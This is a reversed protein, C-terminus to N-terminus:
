LAGALDDLVRAISEPDEIQIDHGTAVEVEPWGRERAFRVSGLFADSGPEKAVCHVFAAPLKWVADAVVAPETLTSLPHWSERYRDAVDAPYADLDDPFPFPVRWGDGVNRAPGLMMEDALGPDVLDLESQGDRPIFADVYILRAIRDAVESAATTIVMGGYSHGVLVVDELREWAILNVVDDRHTSLGVSRSLLHSREGLGTLTPTFVRHDAEALVDAVTRWEWGGGWAGHVIVFTAM